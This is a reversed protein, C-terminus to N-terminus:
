LYYAAKLTPEFTYRVPMKEHREGFRTLKLSNDNFAMATTKEIVTALNTSCRGIHKYKNTLAAM